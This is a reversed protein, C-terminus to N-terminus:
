YCKIYFLAYHVKKRKEAETLLLYVGRWNREILNEKIAVNELTKKM